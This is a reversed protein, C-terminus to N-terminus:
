SAFGVETEPPQEVHLLKEAHPTEKSKRWVRVLLITRRDIATLLTLKNVKQSM